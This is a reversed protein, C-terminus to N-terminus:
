RSACVASVAAGVNPYGLLSAIAEAQVPNNRAFNCIKDILSSRSEGRSSGGSIGGSGGSSGGNWTVDYGRVYGDCFVSTHGSPCSSDYGHGNLGQLDRSADKVGRSYGDSYSSATLKAGFAGHTGVGMGILMTAIIGFVISFATKM